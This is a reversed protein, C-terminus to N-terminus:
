KPGDYEESSPVQLALDINVVTVVEFLPLPVCRTHSTGGVGPIVAALNRQLETLHLSVDNRKVDVIVGIRGSSTFFLEEPQM